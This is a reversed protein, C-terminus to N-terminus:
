QRAKGLSHASTYIKSVRFKASSSVDELKYQIMNCLIPIDVTTWKEDLDCSTAASWTSGVDTRYYFNFDTGETDKYIIDVMRGKKLINDAGWGHRGSTWTCTIATGDDDNGSDFTYAHEAGQTYAQFGTSIEAVCSARFNMNSWIWFSDDNYDWIIAYNPSTAGSKPVFLVYIGQKADVYAHSYKTYAEAALGDLALDADGNVDESIRDSLPEVHYGTFAMIINDTSLFVLIPGRKPDDVYKVTRGAVTGTGSVVEKLMTVPDGGLYSMRHMSRKKFIYLRGGLKEIWNVGVDGGSTVITDSGSGTGTWDTHSALASRVVKDPAAVTARVDDIYVDQAGNDTVVNLGLSIIATDSSPNALTIDAKIWDNATLAPLDITEVASVCAATDDLLLQLDGAACAVSSKILLSIGTYSSIDTSTIDETAALGTTFGAALAIKACNTGVLGTTATVTVNATPDSEDWADECDELELTDVMNALVTFTQWIRIHKGFPAGDVLSPTAASGNWSMLYDNSWSTILATGSYNDFGLIDDSPLPSGTIDDWTGDPDSSSYDMKYFVAGWQALLKRSTTSIGYEWIGNVNGSIDASNLEAFGNRGVCGSICNLSHPTQDPKLETDSINTVQGGRPNQILFDNTKIIM